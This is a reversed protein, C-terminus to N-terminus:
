TVNLKIMEVPIAPDDEDDTDDSALYYNGGKELDVELYITTADEFDFAGFVIDGPVKSAAGKPLPGEDFAQTAASFQELTTGSALKVLTPELEGAGEGTAQIKLVQRGAPVSAPGQVAKGKEVTFTADAAPEEAKDEVVTLENIMGRAFHPTEEGEVNLFCVLAYTGAGLTPVTIRASQGPGMFNGPAGVEELIDATPDGEEQGGEAEPGGGGEQAADGEQASDGGGEGEEGGPPAELVAKLDDLTKGPKLKGMGLMHFEKGKNSINLTGGAKLAGSVSYGYEVYDITVEDAAEEEGGAETASTATGGAEEDDDDGCAAIGLALFMSLVLALSRNRRM